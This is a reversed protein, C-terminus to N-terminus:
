ELPLLDYDLIGLDYITLQEVAIIIADQTRPYLLLFSDIGSILMLGYKGYLVNKFYFTGDSNTVFKPANSRDLSVALEQGSVPDSLVTGLFLIQGSVPESKSLIKGKVIPLDESSFQTESKDTPIQNNFAQSLCSSLILSLLFLILGKKM